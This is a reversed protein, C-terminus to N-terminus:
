GKGGKEKYDNALAVIQDLFANASPRGLRFDKQFKMEGLRKSIITQIAVLEKANPPLTKTGNKKKDNM